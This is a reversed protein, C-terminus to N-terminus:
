ELGGVKWGRRFEIDSLTQKTESYIQAVRWVRSVGKLTLKTGIKLREDYELWCVLVSGAKDRLEYQRMEHPRDLTAM